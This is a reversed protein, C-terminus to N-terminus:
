RDREVLQVEATARWEEEPGPVTMRRHVAGDVDQPRELSIPTNVSVHRQKAAVHVGEHPAAVGKRRRRGHGACPKLRKRPDEEPYWLM